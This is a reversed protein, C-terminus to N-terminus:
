LTSLSSLNKLQFVTNKASPNASFRTKKHLKAFRQIKHQKPFMTHACSKKPKLRSYNTPHHDVSRPPPGGFFHLACKQKKRKTKRWRDGALRRPSHKVNFVMAVPASEWTFLMTKRHQEIQIQAKSSPFKFFCIKQVDFIM